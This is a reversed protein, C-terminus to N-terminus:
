AAPPLQEDHNYAENGATVIDDMAKNERVFRLRSFVSAAALVTSAALLGYLIEDRWPNLGMTEGWDQDFLLSAIAHVWQVVAKTKGIWNSRQEKYTWADLFHFPRRMCIGTAEFFIMPVFSWPNMVGRFIAFVLSILPAKLKDTGADLIAGLETRGPFNFEFWLRSWKSYDNCREERRDGNHSTVVAMAFSSYGVLFGGCGSYGTRWDRPPALTQKCANASKGDLRDYPGFHVSLCVGLVIFGILYLGFGLWVLMSYLTIWSPSFPRWTSQPGLPKWQAMRALRPATLLQLQLGVLVPALVLCQFFEPFPFLWAFRDGM